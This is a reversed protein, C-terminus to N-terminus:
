QIQTDMLAKIVCHHSLSIYRAEDGMDDEDLRDKYQALCSCPFEERDGAEYGDLLYNCMTEVDEYLPREPGPLPKKSLTVSRITLSGGLDQALVSTASLLCLVGLFMITGFVKKKM